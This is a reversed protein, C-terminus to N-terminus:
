KWQGGRQGRKDEPQGGREATKAVAGPAPGYLLRLYDQVGFEGMEREIAFPLKGEFRARARLQWLYPDYYGPKPYVYTTILGDAYESLLRDVYYADGGTFGSVFGLEIGEGLQPTAPLRCRIALPTRRGGVVLCHEVQPFTLLDPQTELATIFAQYLSALERKFAAPSLGSHQQLHKATPAPADPAVRAALAELLAALLANERDNEQLKVLAQPAGALDALMVRAPIPDPEHPREPM